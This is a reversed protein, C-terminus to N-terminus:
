IPAIFTRRRGKAWTYLLALRFSNFFRPTLTYIHQLRSYISPACGHFFLGRLQSVPWHYDICIPSRTSMALRRTRSVGLPAAHLSISRCLLSMSLFNDSAFSLQRYELTDNHTGNLKTSRIGKNEMSEVKGWRLSSANFYSAVLFFLLKHREESIFAYCTPLLTDAVPMCTNPWM